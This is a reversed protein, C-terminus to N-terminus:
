VHRREMVYIVQLINREQKIRADVKLKGEVRQLLLNFSNKRSKLIKNYLYLVRKKERKPYFYSCVYRLSRHIYEQNHILYLNFIFLLYIQIIKWSDVQSPRPLCPENTMLVKVHEDFSFNDTASRIMNAIFGKGKVTINLKHFGEQAFSISSNRALIALFDYFIRDLIIFFTSPLFQLFLNVSLEVFGEFKRHIQLNGDLDVFKRM